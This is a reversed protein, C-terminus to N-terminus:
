AEAARARALEALTGSALAVIAFVVFAVFDHKDAIDLRGVPPISFWNFSLASLAATLLGQRLGWVTAILLVGPIFVIGLSVPTAVSKLPLVLLTGLAVVALSSLAGLWGPPPEGSLGLPIRRSPM